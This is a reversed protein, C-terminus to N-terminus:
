KIKVIWILIGAIIWVFFLFNALEMNGISYFILVPIFLFRALFKVVRGLPTLQQFNSESEM